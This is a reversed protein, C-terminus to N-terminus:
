LPIDPRHPSAMQSGVSDEIMASSDKDTEVQTLYAGVAFVFILILFAIPKM